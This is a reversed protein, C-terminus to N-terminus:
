PAELPTFPASEIRQTFVRGDIEAAIVSVMRCERGTPHPATYVWEVTALPRPDREAAHNVLTSYTGGCDLRDTWTVRDIHRHWVATSAMVLGGPETDIYEVSIYEFVDAPALRSTQWDSVWQGAIITAHVVLVSVAALAAIAPIRAAIYRATRAPM